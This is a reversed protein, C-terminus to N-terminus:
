KAKGRVKALEAQYLQVVQPEYQALFKEGVSKTAERMRALEAPAIENIVMGKAKLEAVAGQTQQAAVKRQHATSEAAAERMMRQEAPSLSDWFKKSVQVLNMSFTHNTLSLYKQVEFFKTSLIISHPNEQGDVAKTELATYLETFAMPVPNAGLLKFTELYVPNGIVRVKLGDFDELKTIPRKSNTVNRFGGLDWFALGVIDKEALKDILLKGFPGDVLGTAEDIGAFSFPLDLAGFEKVLGVLSTPSNTFMEQTGGRLAGQQQQENGLQSSGFEQVKLKGGSKQALIEAFKQVGQSIPHGPNTLHGWRIVREKVDQAAAPLSALWASAAVALSAAVYKRRHIKVTKEQRQM